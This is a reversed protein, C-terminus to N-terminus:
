FPYTQDPCSALDKEPCSAEMRFCV